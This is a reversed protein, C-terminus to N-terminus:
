RMVKGTEPDYGTIISHITVLVHSSCGCCYSDVRDAGQVVPETRAVRGGKAERLRRPKPM